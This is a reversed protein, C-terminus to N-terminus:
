EYQLTLTLGKLDFGAKGAAGKRVAISVTPVYVNKGGGTLASAALPGAASGIEGADAYVALAIGLPVWEPDLSIVPKKRENAIRLVAAATDANRPLAGPVLLIGDANDLAGALGGLSTAGDVMIETLSVRKDNFYAEPLGRAAGEIHPAVLRRLKLNKQIIAFLKDASVLPHVVSLRNSSEIKAKRPDDPAALVVRLDPIGALLAQAAGVSDTFVVKANKAKVADLTAAAGSDGTWVIQKYDLGTVDATLAGQVFGSCIAVSRESNGGRVIVVQAAATLCAGAILTAWLASRLFSNPQPM